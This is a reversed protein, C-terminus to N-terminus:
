SPCCFQGDLVLWGDKMRDKAIQDETFESFVLARYTDGCHECTMDFFRNNKIADAILADEDDWDAQSTVDGSTM